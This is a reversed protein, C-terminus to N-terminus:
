GAKRTFIAMQTPAGINEVTPGVGKFRVTYDFHNAQDEAWKQFETRTWEFRHDLHRMSGAPLSKWIRNFEQNPTTIILTRPKAFEFVVREFALLRAQDIHEIVEVVAAADYDAFRKDRYMLSGQTLEIRQRQLSPLDALRLSDSAAELSRISVDLGTIKQFQRDKLLLKLLRGEGCGLDIVSQAGSAKLEALVDMLRTENLNLSKEISDETLVTTEAASEGEPLTDETLRALAEQAYSMKHKFYRKAIIEKEPHQALWGEGRKLLKDVETSDIYYHKKDDLVPILVYLHTLLDKLTTTKELTVTFYHSDGWEPFQEDLTYQQADVRYGSPEFLRKLLSVGGDCPLMSINVSIPMKVEVLEPHTTCQGNLASTFVRAMAVSFFSSAVYPRDNVYQDMGSSNSGRVMEITDIAILMAVTCRQSTAEPYFINVTGFSLQSSQCRFPNKHLLYGLDTAPNHTTTITLLM